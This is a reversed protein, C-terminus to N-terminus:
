YLNQGGSGPEWRGILDRIWSGQPASMAAELDSGSDIDLLLGRRTVVRAEPFMKLHRHFSAPGFSFDHPRGRTGIASTGGDSSPAIVPGNELARSLATIDDTDILPLDAHLVLWDSNAQDAWAVGASAAADLGVGPDAASPFGARTAWEAVNADATVILPMVGADSVTTAVHDALERALAARRGPDLADALRQKGLVFSKVPIVAVTPM